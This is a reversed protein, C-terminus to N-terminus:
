GLNEFPMYQGRIPNAPHAAKVTQDVKAKGCPLWIIRMPLRLIPALTPFNTDPFDDDDPLNGTQACCVRGCYVPSRCCCGAYPQARQLSVFIDPIIGPAAAAIGPPATVRGPIRHCM